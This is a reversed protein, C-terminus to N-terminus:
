LLICLVVMDKMVYICPFVSILSVYILIKLDFECVTIRDPLSKKRYHPVQLTALGLPLWITFQAQSQFFLDIQKKLIDSCFLYRSM